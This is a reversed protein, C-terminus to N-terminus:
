QLIRAPAGRSFTYHFNPYQYGAASEVLFVVLEIATKEELVRMKLFHEFQAPALELDVDSGQHHDVAQIHGILVPLEDQIMAKLDGLIPDHDGVSGVRHLLSRLKERAGAQFFRDDQCARHNRVLESAGVTKEIESAGQGEDLRERVADVDRHVTPVKVARVDGFVALGTFKDLASRSSLFLCLMLQFASHM